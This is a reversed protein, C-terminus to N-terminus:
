SYITSMCLLCFMLYSYGDMTLYVLVLTSSSGHMCALVLYTCCVLYFLSIYSDLYTLKLAHMCRCSLAPVRALKYNYDEFIYGHFTKVIWDM